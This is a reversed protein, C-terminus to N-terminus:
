VTVDVSTVAKYPNGPDSRQLIDVFYNLSGECSGPGLDQNFRILDTMKDFVEDRSPLRLNCYPNFGTGKVVSAVTKFEITASGSSPVTHGTCQFDRVGVDCKYYAGFSWYESIIQCIAAAAVQTNNESVATLDVGNFTLSFPAM